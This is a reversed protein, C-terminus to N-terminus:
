NCDRAIRDSYRTAIAFVIYSAGWDAAEQDSDFLPITDILNQPGGCAMLLRKTKLGLAILRDLIAQAEHSLM